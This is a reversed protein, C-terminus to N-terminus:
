NGSNEIYKSGKVDSATPLFSRITVLEREYKTGRIDDIQVKSGPTQSHIMQYNGLYMGVHHIFGKEEGDLYAFFLLDGEQAQDLSIEKGQVAQFQADRNLWINITRYLTMMFGSCDFGVTSTGAWVYPLEMFTKALDVLYRRDEYSLNGDIVRAFGKPIALSGIPSDVFYNREDQNLIALVVGISLRVDGQKPNECASIGIPYSKGYATKDTIVLCQSSGRVEHFEALDRTFVWGIYGLRAYTSNPQGQNCLAVKSYIGKEELVEVRDGFLAESDVLLDDYLEMVQQQGLQYFGKQYDQEYLASKVTHANPHTFLFTTTSQVVKIM